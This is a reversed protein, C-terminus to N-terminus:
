RPPADAAAPPAAASSPKVAPAEALAFGVWPEIRQRLVPGIMHVGELQAADTFPGNTDRHTVVNRAISPGVGPLLALTDADAHNVAVRYGTDIPTHPQDPPAPRALRTVLVVSLALILASLAIARATAPQPRPATAPM